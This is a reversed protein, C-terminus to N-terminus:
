LKELNKIDVYESKELPEEVLLIFHSLITHASESELEDILSLKKIYFMKNLSNKKM